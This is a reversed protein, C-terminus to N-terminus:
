STFTGGFSNLRVKLEIIRTVKSVLNTYTIFNGWDHKKIVNYTDKRLRHKQYIRRRHSGKYTYSKYLGGKFVESNTKIKKHYTNFTSRVFKIPISRSLM